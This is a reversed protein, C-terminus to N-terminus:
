AEKHKQSKTDKHAIKKGVIKEVIESVSMFRMEPKHPELAEMSTYGWAVAGFSMGVERAATADRIEDGIYMADAPPVGAKRLTTRLKSAKGFLSAGCSFCYIHGASKPGLIKRITEESNSSVIGITIGSKQLAELMEDVGPFLRLSEWDRAARKRTEIMVRPLKWMPVGLHKIVEGASYNRIKEHDHPEIRRFGFEDALENFVRLFWEGSNALTGDFDFAILRYKM